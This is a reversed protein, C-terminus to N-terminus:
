KGDKVTCSTGRSIRERYSAAETRAALKSLNRIWAHRSGLPACVECSVKALLDVALSAENKEVSAETPGLFILETLGTCTLM